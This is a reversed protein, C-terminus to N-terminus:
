TADGRTEAIDAVWLVHQGLASPSVLAHLRRDATVLRCDLSVAMALYLADDVSCGLRFAIDFAAPVLPQGAQVEVTARSLEDLVTRAENATLEGRRARKWLVSAIEVFFLDPVVLRDDGELLQRAAASDPEALAWKVAVSADIVLTTV